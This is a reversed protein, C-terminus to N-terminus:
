RKMASYIMDKSTGRVDVDNDFNTTRFHHSYWSSMTHPVTMHLHSRFGIIRTTKSM